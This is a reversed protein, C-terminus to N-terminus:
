STAGIRASSRHIPILDDGEVDDHILLTRIGGAENMWLLIYSEDIGPM